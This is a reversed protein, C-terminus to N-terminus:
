PYRGASPKGVRPEREWVRHNKATSVLQEMASVADLAVVGADPEVGARVLLPAATSESGENAVRRGPRM